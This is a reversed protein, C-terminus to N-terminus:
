MYLWGRGFARLQLAESPLFHGDLRIQAAKAHGYGSFYPSVRAGAGSSMTVIHGGGNAAMSKAIYHSFLFAGRIHTEQTRWWEEPDLEWSVGRNGSHSNAM